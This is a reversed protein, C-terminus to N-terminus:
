DTNRTLGLSDKNKLKLSPGEVGGGGRVKKASVYAITGKGDGPRNRFREMGGRKKNSPGKV